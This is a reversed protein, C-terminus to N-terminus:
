KSALLQHYAMSSALRPNKEQIETTLIRFDKKYSDLVYVKEELKVFLKVHRTGNDVNSFFLKMDQIEWGLFQLAQLKAMVYDDCDGRMGVRVTEELSAIHNSKGYLKEDSAYKIFANFFKNVAELQILKDAGKLENMKKNIFFIRKQIEVNDGSKVQLLDAFCGATFLMVLFFIKNM